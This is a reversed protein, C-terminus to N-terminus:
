TLRSWIPLGMLELFEILRYNGAPNAVSLPIGNVYSSWFEALLDAVRAMAAANRIKRGPSLMKQREKHEYRLNGQLHLIDLKEERSVVAPRNKRVYEKLAKLAAEDVTKMTKKPAKQETTGPDNCRRKLGSRRSEEATRSRIEDVM